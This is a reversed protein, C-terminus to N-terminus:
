ALRVEVNRGGRRGPQGSADDDVFAVADVQLRGAHDRHAVEPQADVGVADRPEPPALAPAAIELIANTLSRRLRRAFGRHEGSIRRALELKANVVRIVAVVVALEM